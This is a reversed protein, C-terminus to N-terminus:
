KAKWEALVDNFIKEGAAGKEMTVKAIKGSALSMQVDMWTPNSLLALNQELAAQNLGILYANPAIEVQLGQLPAGKPAEDRRMDPMGVARVDGIPSGEAPLFRINITHSFSLSPDFNKEILLSVKLKAEPIDLDGRIASVLQQNPGRNTSERRWVVTGVYTKVGGPESADQTLVASRYAIPLDAGGPAPAGSETSGAPGAPVDGVRQGIKGGTTQDAAEAPPKLKALDEPKDRLKWAAFGVLLGVLFLSGLIIALRQLGGSERNIPKPAAPRLSERLPPLEDAEDQGEDEAPEEDGPYPDRGPEPAPVPEPPPAAAVPPSPEAFAEPIPKGEALAIERELRAVAEDLAQAERAIAGEPPPPQMARLQGLLAKRARDYISKRAEPTSVSLGGVAKALLPYYDAM